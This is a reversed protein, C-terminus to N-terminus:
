LSEEQGTEQEVLTKEEIELHPVDQAHPDYLTLCWEKAQEFNKARFRVVRKEEFVYTKFKAM